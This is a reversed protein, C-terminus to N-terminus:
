LLLVPKRSQTVWTEIGCCLREGDNTERKKEIKETGRKLRQM